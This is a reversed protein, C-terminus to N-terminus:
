LDDCTNRNLTLHNRNLILISRSMMLNSQRQRAEHQFTVSIRKPDDDRHLRRTSPAATLTRLREM